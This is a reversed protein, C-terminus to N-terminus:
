GHPLQAAREVFKKVFADAIGKELIIRETSMCIQGQNAFANRLERLQAPDGDLSLRHVIWESRRFLGVSFPPRTGGKRM